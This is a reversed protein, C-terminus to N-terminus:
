VGAAVADVALPSTNALRRTRRASMVMTASGAPEAANGVTGQGALMSRRIPEARSSTACIAPTAARLNGIRARLFLAPLCGAACVALLGPGARVSMMPSM